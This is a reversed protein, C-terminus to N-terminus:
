PEVVISVRTESPTMEEVSHLQHARSHPPAPISPMRMCM